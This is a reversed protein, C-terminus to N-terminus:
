GRRHRFDSRVSYSDLSDDSTGEFSSDSCSHDDKFVPLNGVSGLNNVSVDRNSGGDMSAEIAYIAEVQNVELAFKEATAKAKKLALCVSIFARKIGETNNLVKCEAFSHGPKGCVACPTTSDFKRMDSQVANVASQLVKLDAVNDM